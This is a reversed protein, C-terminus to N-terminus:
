RFASADTDRVSRSGSRHEVRRAFPSMVVMWASSVWRLALSAAYTYAHPHDALAVVKLHIYSNRAITPTNGLTELPADTITKIALTTKGKSIACSKTSKLRPYGRADRRSWRNLDRLDSGPLDDLQHLAHAM